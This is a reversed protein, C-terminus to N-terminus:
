AIAAKRRPRGGKKGNQRPSNAKAKSKAVGGAGAFLGAVIRGPVLVPLAAKVM